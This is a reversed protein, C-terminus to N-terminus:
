VKKEKGWDKIEDWHDYFARLLEKENLCSVLDIDEPYKKLLYQRGADVAKEKLWYEVLWGDLSINREVFGEAGYGDPDVAVYFIGHEFEGQWEMHGCLPRPANFIPWDELVSHPREGIVPIRKVDELKKM